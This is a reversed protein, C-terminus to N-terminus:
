KKRIKNALSSIGIYGLLMIYAAVSFGAVYIILCFPYPVIEQVNSYVPLHGDLHRSIYFMNFNERELLGSYYAIENFITAITIATGFVPVAKLVTTQEKKVKGSYLLLIGIPIMSAHCFMTEINVGITSTFVDGPYAMVCLGAFIAYTSLFAYLGDHVRGKRFIGTLLGVYMPMSCFQFPFAYWQYDTLIKGDEVSFTYNIQKYVEFLAVIVATGFVIRGITKDDAKGYRRCLFVTAVVMLALWLIHFWGYLEPTPMRADLFVLVKKIFEM